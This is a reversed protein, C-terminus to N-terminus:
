VLNKQKLVDKWFSERQLIENDSTRPDLIELISYTFNDIIYDPNNAKIEEFDKNGGTLNKPNQM